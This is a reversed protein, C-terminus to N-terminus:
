KKEFEVIDHIFSAIELNSDVALKESYNTHVIVKGGSNKGIKM